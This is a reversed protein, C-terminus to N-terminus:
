RAKWRPASSPDSGSRMTAMPGVVDCASVSFPHGWRTGFVRIRKPNPFGNLGFPGFDADAWLRGRAVLQDLTKLGVPFRTDECGKLFLPKM